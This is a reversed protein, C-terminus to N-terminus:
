SVKWDRQKLSNQMIACNVCPTKSNEADGSNTLVDKVSRTRAGDVTVSEACSTLSVWHSHNLLTPSSAKLHSCSLPLRALTVTLDCLDQAM